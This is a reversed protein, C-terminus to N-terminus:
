LKKVEAKDSLIASNGNPDELTIKFNLSGTKAKWLKKLLNKAKKREDKDESSDRQQELINYFKELISEINTISGEASPGPEIKLRFNPFKLTATTSRAIKIQLDKETKVTLTYKSPEKKELEIDSQKANCSSCELSFLFAKGFSPIEKTSERLTLTKKNCFPCLQKKLEEMSFFM